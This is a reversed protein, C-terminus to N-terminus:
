IIKFKCTMKVGFPIETEANKLDIEEVSFNDGPSLKEIVARVEASFTSGKNYFKNGGVMVVFGELACYDYPSLGSVNLAVRNIENKAVLSTSQNNPTGITIKPLELMLATFSFSYTQGSTYVDITQPGVIRPYVFVTDGSMTCTANESRISNISNIQGRAILRNEVGVYLYKSDKKWSNV